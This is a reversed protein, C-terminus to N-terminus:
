RSELQEFSIDEVLIYEPCTGDPCEPVFIPAAQADRVQERGEQEHGDCVAWAWVDGARCAFTVLWTAPVDAQHYRSCPECSQGTGKNRGFM